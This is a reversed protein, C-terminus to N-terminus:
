KVKLKRPNQWTNWFVLLDIENKTPKHKYILSVRKHVVTYRIHPYKKNRPSGTRPNRSLHSIKTEVSTIFNSIERETWAKQLYKINAEYTKWARYTWNIKCAM